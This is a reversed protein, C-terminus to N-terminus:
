HSMTLDSSPFYHLCFRYQKAALTKAQPIGDAFPRFSLWTQGISTAEVQPCPSCLHGFKNTQLPSRRTEHAQRVLLTNKNSPLRGRFFNKTFLLGTQIGVPSIKETTRTRRFPVLRCGKRRIANGGQGGKKAKPDGDGPPARGM